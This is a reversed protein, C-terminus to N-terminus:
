AEARLGSGRNLSTRRYIDYLSHFTFRTRFLSRAILATHPQFQVHGMAYVCYPKIGLVYSHILPPSDLGPGQERVLANFHWTCLACAVAM